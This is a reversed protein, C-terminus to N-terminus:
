PAPHPPLPTVEWASTYNVIWAPEDDTRNAPEILYRGAVFRTTTGTPKASPRQIQSGMMAGMVWSAIVLLVTRADSM